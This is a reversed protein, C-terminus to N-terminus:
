TKLGEFILKPIPAEVLSQLSYCFNLISVALLPTKALSGGSDLGSVVVVDIGTSSEFPLEPPVPKAYLHLSFHLIMNEPKYVPIHNITEVTTVLETVSVTPVHEVFLALSSSEPLEVSTNIPLSQSSLRIFEPFGDILTVIIEEVLVPDLKLANRAVMNIFSRLLKLAEEHNHNVSLIKVIM